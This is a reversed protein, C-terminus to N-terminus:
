PKSAAASKELSGPGDSGSVIPTGPDQGPTLAKGENSAPQANPPVPKSGQSQGAAPASPAQDRTVPAWAWGDPQSRSKDGMVDSGVVPPPNAADAACAAGAALVGGIVLVACSMHYSRM